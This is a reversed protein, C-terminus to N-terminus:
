VEHEIPDEFLEPLSSGRSYSITPRPPRLVRRLHHAGHCSQPSPLSGQRNPEAGSARSTRRKTSTPPPPTPSPPPPSPVVLTPTPTPPPPPPTPTLPRVHVRRGYNLSHDCSLSGWYRYYFSSALDPLFLLCFSVVVLYVRANVFHCQTNRRLWLKARPTTPRRLKESKREFAADSAEQQNYESYSCVIHSVKGPYPTRLSLLRARGQSIETTTELPQWRVRFTIYLGELAKDKTAKRLDDGFPETRDCRMPCSTSQPVPGNGFRQAFAM